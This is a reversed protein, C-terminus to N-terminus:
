RKSEDVKLFINQLEASFIYDTLIDIRATIKERLKQQDQWSSSRKKITIFQNFMKSDFPGTADSELDKSSLNKNYMELLSIVSDVRSPLQVQKLMQLEFDYEKDSQFNSILKSANALYLRYERLQREDLQSSQKGAEAREENDGSEQEIIKEYPDLLLEEDEKKQPAFSLLSSEDNAADEASQNEVEPLDEQESEEIAEAPEQYTAAKEQQLQEFMYVGIAGLLLILVLKKLRSNLKNKPKVEQDSKTQKSM